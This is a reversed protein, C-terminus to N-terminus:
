KGNHVRLYHYICKRLLIGLLACMLLVAFSIMTFATAFEMTQHGLAYQAIVSGVFLYNEGGMLSPIAFEGFSPIFVLFFGSLVGKMSLPLVIHYWTEFSTAGLDYSADFLTSDFHELAAYIPLVMFPLYCYLMVIIIAPISNLLTLPEHIAGLMILLMNVIGGRDLLFFWAYIHLLFNTWFPLILLFLFFLKLRGANFALFYALPYGVIFCLIGNVAALIISKIIILFYTGAIFLWYRNLTMGYSHTAPNYESLSILAMLALPAYFFLIQWLFLPVAYFFPKEKMLNKFWTSV